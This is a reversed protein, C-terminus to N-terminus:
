ERHAAERHRDWHIAWILAGAGGVLFGLTAAKLDFAIAFLALVNMTLGYYLWARLTWFEFPMLWPWRSLDARDLTRPNIVM